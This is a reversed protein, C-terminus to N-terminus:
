KITTQNKGSVEFEIKKSTQEIKILLTPYTIVQTYNMDPEPYTYRAQVTVGTEQTFVRTLEVGYGPNPSEGRAVLIYTHGNSNLSGTYESYKNESIWKQVDEPLVSNEETIVQHGMSPGVPSSEMRVDVIAVTRTSGDWEVNMGVTEGVFRAPVYTTGKYIFSAPVYETGSLVYNPKDSTQIAQNNFTFSVPELNVEITTLNSAAYGIGSFLVGGIIAGAVFSKINMKKINM